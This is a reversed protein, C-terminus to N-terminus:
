GSACQVWITQEGSFRATRRMWRPNSARPLWIWLPWSLLTVKIWWNAVRIPMRSFTHTGMIDTARKMFSAKGEASGADNALNRYGVAYDAAVQNMMAGNETSNNPDYYKATKDWPAQGPNRLMDVSLYKKNDFEKWVAAETIHADTEEYFVSKM